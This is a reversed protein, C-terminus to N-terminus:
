EMWTCSPRGRQTGALCCPSCSSGRDRQNKGLGTLAFCRLHWTSVCYQLYSFLCTLTPSEKIRWLCASGCSSVLVNLGPWVDFARVVLQELSFLKRRTMLEQQRDGRNWLVLHDRSQGNDDNDMRSSVSGSEAYFIFRRSSLHVSFISHDMPCCLGFKVLIPLICLASQVYLINSTYVHVYVYYVFVYVYKSQYYWM